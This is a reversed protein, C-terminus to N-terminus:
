RGSQREEKSVRKRLKEERGIEHGMNDISLFFINSFKSYLFKIM